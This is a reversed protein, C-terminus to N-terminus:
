AKKTGGADKPGSTLRLGHGGFEDRLVALLKDSFGGAGRSRFRQFLAASIMPAPVGTEVAQNVTWRGEGSDAVYGEIGDLKGYKGFASEALELLWSRIVSGRNWLRSLEEFDLGGGYQSSNIIEFGEGYAAMLAYEIGNHVMKVFHGAGPGGCYLCGGEAALTTLLPLIRRYVGEDGGAMLCYGKELGWIGGSVGMDMFDIGSEGLWAHRRIADKFFSNGGDVVTDGKELLVSLSSLTDEVPKGAPLMVWVTRPRTLTGVLERVSSAGKAGEGALEVVAAASIDYVAVEHGGRMLRRTMNSGMKGLGIMGLQM